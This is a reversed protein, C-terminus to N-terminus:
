LVDERYVFPRRRNIDRRHAVLRWTNEPGIVTLYEAVGDADSLQVRGSIVGLCYWEGDDLQLFVPAGVQNQSLQDTASLDLLIGSRVRDDKVVRAKKRWGTRGHRGAIIVEQGAVPDVFTLPISPLRIETEATFLGGGVPEVITSEISPGDGFWATLNIQGARSYRGLFLIGYDTNVGLETGLNGEILLTPDQVPGPGRCAGLLLTCVTFLLALRETMPSETRVHANTSM